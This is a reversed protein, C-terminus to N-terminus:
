PKAAQADAQDLRDVNGALRVLLRDLRNLNAASFSDFLERLVGFMSPVMSRVLRCGAPTIVIEVRRRDIQSPGRLILGRGILANGIRTMNSTREWTVACLESPTAMGDPRSYLFMLTVLESHNLGHPVLQTALREELRRGLILILRALVMLHRPTDPIKRGLRDIGESMISIDNSLM